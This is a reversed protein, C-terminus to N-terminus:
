DEIKLRKAEQRYKKLQGEYYTRNKPDMELVRRETQVAEAYMGNVFYSEALTDLIHPAHELRAATLALQLARPPNRFSDDECTALLWAFNNLARPNAPQLTIAKEYAVVTKAYDKRSYYLDGLLTYLSPNAPAKAVERLLIKEFFHQNIKQGARGFNLQYGIIGIFLISLMYFVISKNIKHDHRRIWSRDSECQELYAMREKISFHHWNPREPPQGSTVAIKDLTSILPRASDFISYVYIDAQREFNRMFFGFIYRFYILFIIIMLLSFLTPVVTSQNLNTRDLFQYLPETYIFLYIILDFTAYSLVMYGVFFLLYFLLHKRKIHGIEHAIVADVEEPELLKLLAETVLIYRFKKFLGMVGATIMRGSFIPWYLINAYEMGASQCLKEIRNRDQGNELPRCRWFKQILVPGFIAVCLLFFLFYAIEGETTALIRKPLQFPLQNITDAVASLMFWPLLIPMSISINSIIYSKRPITADYLIQQIEFAFWWIIALYLIFLLIFIFATLTPFASLGPVQMLYVSLNLGYIDFAFFLIAIVALRTQTANFRHDLRSFSEATIRRRVRRFELRVLWVFFLISLCFLVLTELPPLNAEEAPQYTTYILLVVILYIFNSFM